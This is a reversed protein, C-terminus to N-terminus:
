LEAEIRRVAAELRQRAGRGCYALDVGIREAIARIRDQDHVHILDMEIYHWTGEGRAHESNLPLGSM